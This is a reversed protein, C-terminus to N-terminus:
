HFPSQWVLTCFKTCSNELTVSYDCKQPTTDNKLAAGQVNHANLNNCENIITTARIESTKLGCNKDINICM